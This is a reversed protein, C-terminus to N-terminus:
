FKESDNFSIYLYGLFLELFGKKILEPQLQDKDESFGGLVVELWGVTRGTGPIFWCDFNGANEPDAVWILCTNWRGNYFVAQCWLSACERLGRKLPGLLYTFHDDHAKCLEHYTPIVFFLSEM